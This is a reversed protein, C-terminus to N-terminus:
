IWEARGIKHGFKSSSFDLRVDLMVIDFHIWWWVWKWADLIFVIKLDYERM